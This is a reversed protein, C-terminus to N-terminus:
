DHELHAASTCTPCLLPDSGSKSNSKRFKMDIPHAVASMSPSSVHWTGLRRAVRVGALRRPNPCSKGARGFHGDVVTKYFNGIFYCNSLKM